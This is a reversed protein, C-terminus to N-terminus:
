EGIKKSYLTITTDATVRTGAKPKQRVVVWNRDWLLLRNQGTADRERLMFLGLSQLYNQAKQHNMGVVRPM